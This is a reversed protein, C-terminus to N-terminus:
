LVAGTMSKHFSAKPAAQLVLLAVVSFDVLYLEQCQYELKLVLM